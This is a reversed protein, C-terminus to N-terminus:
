GRVSGVISGDDPPDDSPGEDPYARGGKAKMWLWRARLTPPLDDGSVGRALAWAVQEPDEMEAVQEDWELLSILGSTLPAWRREGAFRVEQVYDNGLGKSAERIECVISGAGTISNGTVYFRRPSNDQVALSEDLLRLNERVMSDPCWWVPAPPVYDLPGILERDDSVREELDPRSEAVQELTRADIEAPDDPEPPDLPGPPPLEEELIDPILEELSTDRDLGTNAADRVRREAELRDAMTEQDVQKAKQNALNDRINM